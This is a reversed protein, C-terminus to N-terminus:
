TRLVKNERPTRLSRSSRTTADRTRTITSGIPFTIQHIIVLEEVKKKYKVELTKKSEELNLLHEYM